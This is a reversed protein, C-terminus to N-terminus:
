VPYILVIIKQWKDYGGIIYNMKVLKIKLKESVELHSNHLIVPVECAVM